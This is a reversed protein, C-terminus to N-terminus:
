HHCYSFPLLSQRSLSLIIEKKGAPFFWDGSHIKEIQCFFLLHLAYYGSAVAM